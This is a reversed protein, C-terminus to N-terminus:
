HRANAVSRERLPTRRTAIFVSVGFGIVVLLLQAPLLPPMIYISFGIGVAIMAIATVKTRTAISREGEWNAIIPGFYRHQRLLTHFKKSGRAYSASALLIFPTTPMIPLFIGVVGLALFLHGLGIFLLKYPRTM